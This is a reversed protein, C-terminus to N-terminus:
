PLACQGRVFYRDIKAKAFLNDLQERLAMNRKNRTVQWRWSDLTDASPKGAGANYAQYFALAEADTAVPVQEEAFCGAFMRATEQIRLERRLASRDLGQAALFARWATDDAFSGRLETEAAEVAAPEAEFHRAEAAQFLLERRVLENIANQYADERRGQAAPDNRVGVEGKLRLQTMSIPRGNVRAAVEPCPPLSRAGAAEQANAVSALVSVFVASALFSEM